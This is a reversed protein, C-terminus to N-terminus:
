EKSKYIGDVNIMLGSTINLSTLIKPHTAIYSAVMVPYSLVKYIPIAITAIQIRGM